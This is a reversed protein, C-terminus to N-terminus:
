IEIAEAGASPELLLVKDWDHLLNLSHGVANRGELDIGDTIYDVLVLWWEPYRGRVRSVKESKELICARLSVALEALLWGGADLDNYGGFVLLQENRGPAAEYFNASFSASLKHRVPESGAGLYDELSAASDKFFTEIATWKPIPRRFQYLVYWSRGGVSPGISSLLNQIRAQLPFSDELLGKPRGTVRSDLQLLRRVEVAVRGDCLFDPPVNGDPEHVVNAFGIRKLFAKSIAEAADM